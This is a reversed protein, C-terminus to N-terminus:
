QPRVVLMQPVPAAGGSPAEQAKAGTEGPAGVLIVLTSLTPLLAM